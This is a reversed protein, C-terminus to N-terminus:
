RSSGLKNWVMVDFRKNIDMKIDDKVMPMPRVVKGTGEIKRVSTKYADGL